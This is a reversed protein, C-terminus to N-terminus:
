ITRKKKKPKIDSEKWINKSQVPSNAPKAADTIVFHFAFSLYEKPYTLASTKAPKTFPKNRSKMAKKIMDSATSLAMSGGSTLM